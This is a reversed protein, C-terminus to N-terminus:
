RFSPTGKGWSAGVNILINKSCKQFEKFVLRPAVCIIM